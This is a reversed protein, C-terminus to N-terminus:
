LVLKPLNWYDRYVNVMALYNEVPVSQSIANSATFIHGGNGLGAEICEISIRRIEEPSAFSLVNGCDLNGILTIRDGYLEKLKKLDMGVSYDIEAYADVGTGILYEEIVSWLDGDSANIAKLGLKHVLDTCRKMEPMIFDRYAQPSILPRNGAFDGGVGIFDAGAQALKEVTAMCWRSALEFHKHAVDPEVIMTEMLDVDTWIGHAYAPLWLPIDLDRAALEQKLYEFVLYQSEDEPEALELERCENRWAVREIPDDEQPPPPLQILAAPKEKPFPPNPCVYIMDHGLRQALEARDRAYQRVAQEYGVERAYQEWNGPGGNYDTYPRGLVAEAVPSFLVYELIPTRDPERHAFAAEIRQRSNM